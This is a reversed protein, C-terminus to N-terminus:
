PKQPEPAPAPQPNEAKLQAWLYEVQGPTISFCAGNSWVLGTTLNVTCNGTPVTWTDGGIATLKLNM